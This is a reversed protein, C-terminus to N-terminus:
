KLVIESFIIQNSTILNQIAQDKEVGIRFFKVGSEAGETKAFINFEVGNSERQSTITYVVFCM